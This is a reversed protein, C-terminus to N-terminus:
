LVDQKKGAEVIIFLKETFMEGCIKTNVYTKFGLYIGLLKIAPDHLKIKYSVM